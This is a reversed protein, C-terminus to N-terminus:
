PMSTGVPVVPANFTCTNSGANTCTSSLQPILGSPVTTSVFATADNFLAAARVAATM